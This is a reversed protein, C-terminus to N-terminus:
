AYNEGQKIGSFQEAKQLGSITKLFNYSLELERNNMKALLVVIKMLEPNKTQKQIHIIESLDIELIESIKLYTSLKPTYTGDELKGIHRVSFGAKKALEKQTMGLEKRRSKMLGSFATVLCENNM